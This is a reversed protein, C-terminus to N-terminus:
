KLPTRGPDELNHLRPCQMYEPLANICSLVTLHLKGTVSYVFVFALATIFSLRFLFVM